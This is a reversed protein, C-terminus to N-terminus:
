GLITSSVPALVAVILLAADSLGRGALANSTIAAVYAGVSVFGAHGLSFMGTFGYILNLSIALIANIAVLNLVQVSYSDLHQQALQLLGGLMLVAVATLSFDRAKANMM